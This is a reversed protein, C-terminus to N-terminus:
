SRANDSREESPAAGADPQHQRAKRAVRIRQRRRRRGSSMSIAEVLVTFAMAIYIIERSIPQHVGEAVLAVGILLLFALALQKAAPHRHVFASVWGAAVYMVIMSLIIAFAMVSFDRAMGIATVTSDISFVLNIVGIQIIASAIHSPKSPVEVLHAGGEAEVHMEHTAKVILFIGGAVLIIDRWSIVHNLVTFSPTRLTLLTTIAALMMLRLVLALILGIRRTRDQQERPLRSVLVAIFVINDVGLVIEMATLATLAALGEATFIAELM